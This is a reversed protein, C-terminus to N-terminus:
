SWRGNGPKMDEPRLKIPFNARIKADIKPDIYEPYYNALLVKVREHAVEYIDKSGKDMWDDANSRDSIGPYLYESRMLKLTQEADLFHGSGHVAAYITDFSLAEESVDIGHHVRLVSGMMDNDIVMSEFSTAILSGVAGPYSAISPAGALTAALTTIGKEFGAQNDPLKADTMGTAVGCRLGYFDAIQASAAMLLAQEPGGGSFSGTRLDSVFPWMGFYVPIAPNIMYTTALCALSEAFTQVLSGALAAPATAGAQSAVAVGYDLGMKACKVMVETSDKAFRLPSVIPCGGLSCFPDELFKGEGGAFMDLLQIVSELHGATSVSISFDKQTGARLAYAVNIDHILLDESYESAIFPQGVHHIHELRDSLRSADYLDVLTSPRYRRTDFDLISISEGSTGFSVRTGVPHEDELSADQSRSHRPSKEIAAEVLSRPFRLRGEPDLFCGNEVAIESLEPIPDALGIKELVDLAAHHIKEVEHDSLPKYSAGKPNLQLDAISSSTGRAVRQASRGGRRRAPRDRRAM